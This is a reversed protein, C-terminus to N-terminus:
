GASKPRRSCGARAGASWFRCPRSDRFHMPLRACEEVQEVAGDIRPGLHRRERDRLHLDDLDGLRERQLRLEQQQVLRGGRDAAVFRGREEVHQAPEPRLADGDDEDTVLELFHEREAVAHRHQTVALDGGGVLGYGADCPSSQHRQHDAAVLPDGVDPDAVRVRTSVTRSSLATEVENPCRSTSRLRRM